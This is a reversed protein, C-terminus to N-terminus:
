GVLKLGMRRIEPWAKAAEDYRRIAQKIPDPTIEQVWGNLIPLEMAPNGPHGLHGVGHRILVMRGREGEPDPPQERSDGAKRPPVGFAKECRQQCVKCLPAFGYPEGSFRYPRMGGKPKPGGTTKCKGCPAAKDCKGWPDANRRADYCPRCVGGRYYQEIVRRCKGCEVSM